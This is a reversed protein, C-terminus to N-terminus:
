NGIKTCLAVAELALEKTKASGGCDYTKGDIKRRVLFAAMSGNKVAEDGKMEIKDMMWLAKIGDPTAEASIWSQFLMAETDQKFQALTKAAEEAATERINFDGAEADLHMGAAGGPGNDLWKAPADVSLNNSNPIARGGAKPAAAAKDPEAVKAAAAAAGSPAPDSAAADEKNKCAGLLGLAAVLTLTLRNRHTLIAHPKM